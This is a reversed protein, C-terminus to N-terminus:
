DADETAPTECNLSGSGFTEVTCTATGTVTIDGSGVINAEVEGDSAFSADGSGAVTVEAKDVKLDAMESKGSGVINLDMREATGAASMSGSGAITVELRSAALEAVDARGSGAITIDAEEAMTPAEVRGSGAIVISKPAPMTVQVIATGVDSWKGNARMVGLTDDELTFRVLEAAEDDGEIEINLTDGETVVVRDPGALVLKNPADGSMDLESLAVGEEDGISVKIDGCAAVGMSLAIVAVPAVRKVFKQIM